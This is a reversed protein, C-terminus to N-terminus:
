KRAPPQVVLVPVNARLIITQTVSGMIMKGVPSRRRAGIVLLEDVDDVLDLVTEAVDAGIEVKLTWEVDSLNAEALARAIDDRLTNTQAEVIDIDVGEPIHIITLATRRLSAEKAAEQLTLRGINSAQYAVVVSM